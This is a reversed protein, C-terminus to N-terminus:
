VTSHSTGKPLAFPSHGGTIRSPGNPGLTWCLPCHLQFIPITPTNLGEYPGRALLQTAHTTM